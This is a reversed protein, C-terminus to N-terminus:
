FYWVIRADDQFTPGLYVSDLIGPFVMRNYAPGLSSTRERRGDNKSFQGLFKCVCEMRKGHGLIAAEMWTDSEWSYWIMGHHQVWASGRDLYVLIGLFVLSDWSLTLVLMYPLHPYSRVCPLWWIGDAM